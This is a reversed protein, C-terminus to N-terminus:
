RRELRIMAERQEDFKEQKTPTNAEPIVPASGCRCNFPSENIKVRYQKPTFLRGHNEAHLHRVRNDLRTLWRILVEEDLEESARETENATSVQFAQITETQAILRARSSTVNVRERIQKSTEAIGQGQSVADFLIQRVDRAM